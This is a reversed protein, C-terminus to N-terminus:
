KDSKLVPYLRTVINLNTLLLSTYLFNTIVRILYRNSLFIFSDHHEPGFCNRAYSCNVFYQVQLRLIIFFVTFQAKLEGYFHFLVAVVTDEFKNLVDAEHKM